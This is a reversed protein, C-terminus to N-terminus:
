FLDVPDVDVAWRIKNADPLRMAAAILNDLTHHLTRRSDALIVVLQRYRGARKEMLAPMPGLLNVSDGLGSKEIVQQLFDHAKRSDTAEARILAQFVYPPLQAERREDLLKESFAAYGDNVLSKLLPHGAFETQIIVEGPRDARGSRGGVQIILQGVRETARFDTSYFGGDVDLIAALTVAPFHHGKALLQTGVLISPKGSHVEELAAEMEGKRRTSDRDIRIVPYAPYLASLTQEVRETGIGIAAVQRSRCSQCTLINHSIIGCHHCVLSRSSMHFTLKADCRRCNAIWGCDNCILVPAYGRRNLFVLVQNGNELTERIRAKLRRTLGDIKELHRTDVLEYRETKVGPPRKTLQLLAYKGQHCNNRSELSPTASGLIVPVKAFQGRLVALDRASYRFGDQQKYSADHEEDVIIAGLKTFPIFIASRTGIVIKAEGRSALTWTDAREKDTASSHYIHVPFRFRQEFRRITQPTLGIEPVLVLVQHGQALQDAIVQLYVETKGSGTVGDLLFTSHLASGLVKSVADSQEATLTPGNAPTIPSEIDAAVPEWSAWSKEILAKITQSSVGFTKLASRSMPAASLAEIAKRQAPARTLESESVSEGTKSLQLLTPPEFEYKGKRILSPLAAAYVEGLPHHYYDAAWGCLQLIEAPLASPFPLVEDIARISSPKLHAPPTTEDLAVGVLKRSGFPVRVLSGKEPVDNCRYCFSERLPVPLAVLVYHHVHQNGSQQQPDPSESM